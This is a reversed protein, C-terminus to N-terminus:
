QAPGDGHNAPKFINYSDSATSSLVGPLQPHWHLEKIDKQGQHVFYLQPPIDRLDDRGAQAAEAEPDAELALDWLTLQDDAGAVALTSSEHPSWEISAVAQKHWRFLAVPKASQLMRLDWIRFSGDDAGTAVLYNVLANWSMVNVDLGHAEDVSLASGAKKRVDWVRVTSDCGCSMLVGAESPSWAQPASPPRM